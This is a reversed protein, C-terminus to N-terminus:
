WSCLRGACVACLKRPILQADLSGGHVTLTLGQLLVQGGGDQLLQSVQQWQGKSWLQHMLKGLVHVTGGQLWRASVQQERIQKVQVAEDPLLEAKQAALLRRQQETLSYYLQQWHVAALLLLESTLQLAPGSLLMLCARASASISRSSSDAAAATLVLHLVHVMGCMQQADFMCVEKDIFGNAVMYAADATIFLDEPLLAVLRQQPNSLLLQDGRMGKGLQPLLPLLPTRQQQQVSELHEHL